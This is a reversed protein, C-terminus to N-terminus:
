SKTAAIVLHLPVELFGPADSEKEIFEPTPEPEELDTIALGASTMIKTYWSLPRHYAITFKKENSPRLVWPVEERFPRRYATIKRFYITQYPIHEILWCSNSGNDFCPHPISAVFRGSKKLVRGVESIAGEADEIDMLSMNAFALDFTSDLFFDLRNANTVIYHIELDNEPDHKRACEIMQKSADIATVIAGAHAFRRSLYGNGCGIDLVTKDRPDGLLRILPPDILARHWLDGTEGQKQDYWDAHKDWSDETMEVVILRASYIM